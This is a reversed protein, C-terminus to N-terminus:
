KLRFVIPLRVQSAVAEGGSRAPHFSAKAAARAAAEDLLPHGSSLALKVGTVEGSGSVSIDLEVRGEEGRRRAAAPYDPEISSRLIAEAEIKAACKEGMDAPAPAPPMSPEVFGPSDPRPLAPIPIPRAPPTEPTITEGKGEAAGSSFELEVRSVDLRPGEDESSAGIVRAIALALAAHVALAVLLSVALRTM